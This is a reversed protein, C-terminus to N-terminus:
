PPRLVRLELFESYQNWFTSVIHRHAARFREVERLQSQKEKYLDAVNEAINFQSVTTEHLHEKLRQANQSFLAVSHTLFSFRKELDEFQCDKSMSDMGLSTLLKQSMRSSKKGISHMNIKSIKRSLTTEEETKYKEVIDKKRKTENIFAAVDSMLAVAERLDKKDEDEEETCKLLENLILPYKLIRQVPKILISGMNFCSIEARLSEVGQQLVKQMEPLADFKELLQEAKDHNLCYQTYATRMSDAHDLFCNGVLQKNAPKEESVQQQVSGLFRDSIEIIEGINGFLVTAEIGKEELQQPADLNFAQWTLKLDRGYERETLVLEGLVNERQERNRRRKEEAIKREEEVRKAKIREDEEKKSLEDIKEEDLKMEEDALCAQLRQIDDSVTEINEQCRDMRKNLTDYTSGRAVAIDQYMDLELLLQEKPDPNSKNRIENLRLQMECDVDFEPNTGCM